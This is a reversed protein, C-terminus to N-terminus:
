RLSLARLCASLSFFSFFFDFFNAFFNCFTFCSSSLATLPSIEASKAFFRFNFLSFSLLLSLSLLPLLSLSTSTVFTFFSVFFCLVEEDEQKGEEDEEDEEEEEEDDEDDEEEDDEDDDEEEEEEEEEEERAGLINVSAGVASSEIICNRFEIHGQSFVLVYVDDVCVLPSQTTKQKTKAKHVTTQKTLPKL